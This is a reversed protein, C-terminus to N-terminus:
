SALKSILRRVRQEGEGTVGFLQLAQHLLQDPNAQPSFYSPDIGFFEAFRILTNWNPNTIKGARWAQITSHHTGIARAVESNTWEAGNPKRHQDFVRNVLEAITPPHGQGADGYQSAM